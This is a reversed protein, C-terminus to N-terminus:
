SRKPVSSFTNHRAPSTYDSCRTWGYQLNELGKNYATAACIQGLFDLRLFAQWNSPLKSDGTVRRRVGKGRKQIATM